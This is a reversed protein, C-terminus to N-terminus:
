AQKTATRATYVAQGRGNKVFRARCGTMEAVMSPGGLEHILVDLPNPPLDAADVLGLLEQKLANAAPVEEGEVAAPPVGEPGREEEEGQQQQQQQPAQAARTPVHERVFRRVM